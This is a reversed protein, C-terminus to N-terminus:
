FMATALSGSVVTVLSFYLVGLVTNRLDSLRPPLRQFTTSTNQCAAPRMTKGRVVGEVAQSRDDIGPGNGTGCLADHSDRV